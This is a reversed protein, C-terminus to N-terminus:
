KTFRIGVKLTASQDMGPFNWIQKHGRFQTYIVGWEGKFCGYAWSSPYCLSLTELPEVRHSSCSSPAMSFMIFGSGTSSPCDGFSLASSWFAFRAIEIASRTMRANAARPVSALATTIPVVSWVSGIAVWNKWNLACYLSRGVNVYAESKLVAENQGHYYSKNHFQSSKTRGFTHSLCTRRSWSHPRTRRNLGKGPM